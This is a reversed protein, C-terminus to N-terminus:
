AKNLEEQLEFMCGSTLTTSGDAGILLGEAGEQGELFELAEGKGMLFLATAAVDGALSSGCVISASELDTEVPMGTSPDLIHHYTAGDKRFCREYLGSTVVSASEVSVRAMARGRAENPDQVGIQWPSGDPRKGLAYVNGGLDLLASECGLRRLLAALDDAVYGKAIGGLDIAALPDGLQVRRGDVQVCEYGVHPLAAALEDASPVVGRKFDWLQTVAGITIDFRGGTARSWELAREIVDATEAAVEVAAGGARNIRAVDSGERTRSFIGEFYSVREVCRNLWTAEGYVTLSVATDFAFVTAARKQPAAQATPACGLPASGLLLGGACLAALRLARRRSLPFPPAARRGTAGNSACKAM